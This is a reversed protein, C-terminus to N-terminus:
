ISTAATCTSSSPPSYLFLGGLHVAFVQPPSLAGVPGGSDHARTDFAYVHVSSMPALRPRLRTWPVPCLRTHRWFLAKPTPSPSIPLYSATNRLDLHDMRFSATSDESFVTSCESPGRDWGGFAQPTRTSLALHDSDSIATAGTRRPLHGWGGPLRLSDGWLASAPSGAAFPRRPHARDRGLSCSGMRGYAIAAWRLASTRICGVM